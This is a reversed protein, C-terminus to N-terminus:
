FTTATHKSCGQSLQESLIQEPVVIRMNWDQVSASNAPNWSQHTSRPSHDCESIIVCLNFTILSINLHNIIISTLSFSISTRTTELIRHWYNHWILPFLFQSHELLWSKLTHTPDQFIYPREHCRFVFEYSVSYFLIFYGPELVSSQPVGCTNSVVLQSPSVITDAQMTHMLANFTAKGNCNHWLGLTINQCKLLVWWWTHTEM